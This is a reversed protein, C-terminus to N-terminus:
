PAKGNAGDFSALLLAFTQAHSAIAMALYPCSFSSCVAHKRSNMHNVPVRNM